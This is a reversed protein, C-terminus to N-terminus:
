KDHEHLYWIVKENPCKCFPCEVGDLTNMGDGDVYFDYDTAFMGCDCNYQKYEYKDLTDLIETFSINKM